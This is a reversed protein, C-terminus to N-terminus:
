RCRLASLAEEVSTFVPMIEGLRVTRIVQSVEGTAAALAFPYGRADLHAWINAVLGIAASTLFTVCSLDLVFSAGAGAAEVAGRLERGLREILDSQYVEAPRIRMVRVRGHDALELLPKPLREPM